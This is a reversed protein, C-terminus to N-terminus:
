FYSNLRSTPFRMSEETCVLDFIALDGLRDEEMEEEGEGEVTEEAMEEVMEEAETNSSSCTCYAHFYMM